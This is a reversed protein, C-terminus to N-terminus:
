SAECGLILWGNYVPNDTPIGGRKPRSAYYTINHQRIACEPFHRAIIEKFDNVIIPDINTFGPSSATLSGEAIFYALLRCWNLRGIRTQALHGPCNKARSHITGSGTRIVPVWGQATLFPHNATADISRGTRTRVRYCPKVGSDIWRSILTPRVHGLNDIGYVTPQQRKVCEELTMREGTVPDDILTWSALCKGVSPRAALIILDSQQLGGTMEDLDRFGSPVGVVEGRHEQLYNIQEYYSDIVQGIHIFDQTSRRQSIEFM